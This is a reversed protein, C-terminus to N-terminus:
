ILRRRLYEERTTVAKFMTDVTFLQLEAFRAGHPIVFTVHTADYLPLSASNRSKINLDKHDRIPQFGGPLELPLIWQARIRDIIASFLDRRTIIRIGHVDFVPENWSTRRLKLGISQLTKTRCMSTVYPIDQQSLQELLEEHLAHTIGGVKQYPFMYQAQERADKPVILEPM